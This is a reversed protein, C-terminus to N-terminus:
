KFLAVKMIIIEYVIIHTYYYDSFSYTITNVIRRM